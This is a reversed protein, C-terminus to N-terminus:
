DQTINCTSLKVRHFHYAHVCILYMVLKESIKRKSVIQKEELNPFLTNLINNLSYKDSVCVWEPVGVEKWVSVCVCTHMCVCFSDSVSGINTETELM